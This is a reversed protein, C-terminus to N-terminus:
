INSVVFAINGCDAALGADAILRFWMALEGGSDTTQPHGHRFVPSWKEPAHELIRGRFRSDFPPLAM